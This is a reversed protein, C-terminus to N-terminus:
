TPEKDPVPPPTLTPTHYPGVAISGDGWATVLQAFVYGEIGRNGSERNGAINVTGILETKVWRRIQAPTPNVILPKKAAELLRQTLRTGGNETNGWLITGDAAMLNRVTRARYSRTPLEEVGYRRLWPAAGKETWYDKPMWGGTTIGLAHGARLGAQDAGTQGGSIIRVPRTDSPGGETYPSIGKEAWSDIVRCPCDAVHMRHIRCVFDGCGDPCPIWAPFPSM